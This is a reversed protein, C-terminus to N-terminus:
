HNTTFKYTNRVTKSISVCLALFIAQKGWGVGTQHGREPSGTLIEPHFKDRLFSLSPAVTRKQSIWGHSLHVSPCVSPRTIAHASLVYYATARLFQTPICATFLLSGETGEGSPSLDYKVYEGLLERQM